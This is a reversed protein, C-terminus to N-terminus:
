HANKYNEKQNRLDENQHDSTGKYALFIKHILSSTKSLASAIYPFSCKNLNYIQIEKQVTASVL